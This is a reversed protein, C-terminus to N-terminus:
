GILVEWSAHDVGQGSHRPEIRVGRRLVGQPVLHEVQCGTQM